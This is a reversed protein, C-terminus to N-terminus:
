CVASEDGSIIDGMILVSSGVGLMEDPWDNPKIQGWCTMLRSPFNLHQLCLVNDESSFNLVFNNLIEIKCPKNTVHVSGKKDFKKPKM